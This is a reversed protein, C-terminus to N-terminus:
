RDMSRATAAMSMPMYPWLFLLGARDKTPVM